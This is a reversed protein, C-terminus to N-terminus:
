HTMIWQFLNCDVLCGSLTFLLSVSGVISFNSKHLIYVKERKSWSIDLFVIITVDWETDNSSIQDKIIKCLCTLVDHNCLSSRVLQGKLKAHKGNLALKSSLISFM